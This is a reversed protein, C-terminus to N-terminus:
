PWSYWEWCPGSSQITETWAFEMKGDAGSSLKMWATEGGWADIFHFVAQVRVRSHKPLGKFTKTM